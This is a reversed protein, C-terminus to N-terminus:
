VTTGIESPGLIIWTTVSRGPIEAHWIDGSRFSMEIKLSKNLKNVIVAVRSGDTNRFSTTQVGTGDPWYYSGTGTLYRAGKSVFKSFQGLTYFDLTKEYTKTTRDVQIIGSCLTCGGPSSVDFHKSGGLTWALAGSAYNELPGVVFEPLDFMSSAYNDDEISWEEWAHKNDSLSVSGNNEQLFKGSHSAIFFKGDGADTLRWKEWAEKKDSFRVKSSSEQLLQGRHSTAFVMGDGADVLLWKEWTGKNGSLVVEGNNDQLWQGSQSTIYVVRVAESAVHTWCETMYQKKDPYMKHFDALVRFGTVYPWSSYCHWAIAAVDNEANQLIYEPYGPQDTNHDYAWIETDHGATRLAPQLKKTLAAADSQNIYTTWAPDSGSLPENQLTMAAVTIGEAKFLSVYKVMYDVWQDEYEQRLTNTDQQKMWQPPSWLSGLLMVDPKVKLMRSLWSTMRRGNDTLDAHALELDPRGGNEDYSWQGVWSPTLDSQGISHRMLGLRIGEKGFIDQLVEEQLNPPLEDFVALTADTWTAGFGDIEQRHGSPTDDVTIKWDANPLAGRKPAEAATLKSKGDETTAFAQSGGGVLEEQVGTEDAGLLSSAVHGSAHWYEGDRKSLARLPAAATQLLSCGDTAAVINLSVVLLAFPASAVRSLM